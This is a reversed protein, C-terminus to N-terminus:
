QYYTPTKHVTCAAKTESLNCKYKGSTCKISSSLNNIEMPTIETLLNFCGQSAHSMVIWLQRIISLEDILVTLLM